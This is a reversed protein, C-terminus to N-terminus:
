RAAVAPPVRLLLVLHMAAVAVAGALLLWATHLVAAPVRWDATGAEMVLAAVAFAEAASHTATAAVHVFYELHPLGGLRQRSRRELFVDWAAVAWDAAVLAGLCYLRTTPSPGSAIFTVWLTPVVLVARLSHAIHETRSEPRVHLRLKHLHYYLGDAAGVSFTLVWLAVSLSLFTASL